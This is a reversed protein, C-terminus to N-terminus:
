MTLELMPQQLRLVASHLDGVLILKMRELFLGLTFLRSDVLYQVTM